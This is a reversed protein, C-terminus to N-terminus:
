VCGKRKVFVSCMREKQGVGFVDKGESWCSGDGEQCVGFVERRMFM